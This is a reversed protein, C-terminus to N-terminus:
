VRQAPSKTIVTCCLLAARESFSFCIRSLIHGIPGSRNVRMGIEEGLRSPFVYLVIHKKAWCALPAAEQAFSFPPDIEHRLKDRGSRARPKLLSERRRRNIGVAAIASNRIACPVCTISIM